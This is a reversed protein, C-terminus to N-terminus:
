MVAGPSFPRRRAPSGNQKQYRVSFPIIPIIYASNPFVRVDPRAIAALYNRDFVMGARETLEVLWLLTIDLLSTERYGGGVNCHVGAFRYQEM